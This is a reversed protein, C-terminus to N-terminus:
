RTVNEEHDHQEVKTARRASIIRIHDELLETFCVTGMNADGSIPISAWVIATGATNGNASLTLIGGPMSNEPARMVSKV